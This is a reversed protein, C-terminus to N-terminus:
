TTLAKQLLKRAFRNLQTTPSRFDREVTQLYALIREASNPNYYNGKTLETSDSKRFLARVWEDGIVMEFGNREFFSSVKELDFCYNHVSQLYMLFNNSSKCGDESIFDSSKRNWNLLGPVEVYVYGRPTLMKRVDAISKDIDVFHEFVHSLIILDAQRGSAVLSDTGGRLLNLGRRRGVDLYEEDFDCGMVEKGALYFPLLNCGDRCGIEFITKLEKLITDLKLAIFAFRKWSYADPRTRKFFSGEPAVGDFNIDGYFEEYVVELSVEDFFSDNFVLGCCKCIVTECPIGYRDKEAILIAEKGFCLPCSEHERQEINGKNIEEKLRKLTEKARLSMKRNTLFLGKSNNRFRHSLINDTKKMIGKYLNLTLSNRVSGTSAILM